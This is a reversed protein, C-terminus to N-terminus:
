VEWLRGFWIPTLRRWWDVVVFYSGGIIGGHPLGLLSRCELLLFEFKFLHLIFNVTGELVVLVAFLLVKALLHGGLTLFLAPTGLARQHGRALM